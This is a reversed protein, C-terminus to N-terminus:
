GLRGSSEQSHRIRLFDRIGPVLKRRFHFPELLQWLVLTRMYREPMRRSRMISLCWEVIRHFSVAESFWEDWQERAILGMASASQECQELINPILRVDAEKVIISFSNWTPGEPAVWDDAIIVPVRGAKMTEFIRLTSAGDGRPCLTFKSNMIVESFETRFRAQLNSPCGHFYAPDGSTDRLISRPHSLTGIAQRLRTGRLDGVFSFLLEPPKGHPDFSIWHYDFVEPYSGSRVRSRDYQWKQISPYIGPLFPIVRDSTDILFTREPFKRTYPHTRVDLALHPDGSEFFIILDAVAPDDVLSHVKFRDKSASRSIRALDDPWSDSGTGLTSILLVKAM